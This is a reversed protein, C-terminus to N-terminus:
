QPRCSLEPSPLGPVLVWQLLDGVWWLVRPPRSIPAFAFSGHLSLPQPVLVKIFPKCLSAPAPRKGAPCNREQCSGYPALCERGMSGWHFDMGSRSGWAAWGTASSFACRWTEKNGLRLDPSVKRSCATMKPSISSDPLLQGPFHGSSV